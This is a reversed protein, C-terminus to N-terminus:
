VRPPKEKLAAALIAPELGKEALRQQEVIALEGVQDPHPNPHPGPSPTSTANPTTNRHPHPHPERVLHEFQSDGFMMAFVVGPDVMPKELGARGKLDYKKRSSADSLM